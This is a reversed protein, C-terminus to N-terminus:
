RHLHTKRKLERKNSGLHGSSPHTAWQIAASKSLTGNSMAGKACTQTTLVTGNLTAPREAANAHKVTWQLAAATVQRM